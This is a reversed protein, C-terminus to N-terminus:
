KWLNKIFSRLAAYFYVVVGLPLMVSCASGRGKWLSVDPPLRRRWVTKCDRTEGVCQLGWGM